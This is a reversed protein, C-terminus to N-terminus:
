DTTKFVRMYFDKGLGEVKQCNEERIQNKFVKRYNRPFHKWDKGVEDEIIVLVKAIREMEKFIWESEPHIHELVAMTYVVDFQKDEFDKMKKEIPSNYVVIPLKYKKKFLEVAKSNIEIGALNKFGAQHLSRLNRGVNCGIELIASDANAYDKIVDVAYRSRVEGKFYGQPIAPDRWYEHIKDKSMDVDGILDWKNKRSFIKALKRKLMTGIGIKM